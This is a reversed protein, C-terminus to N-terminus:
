CGGFFCTLFDFFDQSNTVGNANYDANGAFFGTLFDFFDQSNLTGNHNWDCACVATCGSVHLVFPGVNGNFGSVRIQYVEGATVGVIVYSDRDTDNIDDNCVLQNATETPCATHISLVTDYVSGMTDIAVQGTCPATYSFVVDPTSNSTGCDSSGDATAGSTDGHYTGAQVPAIGKCTDNEPAFVGARLYVDQIAGNTDSPRLNTAASNFGVISGDASIFPADSNADSQDGNYALSVLSTRNEDRDRVLIDRHMNTDGCGFLSCVYNEADSAFAVYRGNGSIMPNISSGTLRTVVTEFQLNLASGLSVVETVSETQPTGPMSPDPPASEDFLGDADTDRDRVFVDVADNTDGPVGEQQGLNSNGTAFAVFRGSDSISVRGLVDRNPAGEGENSRVSVRVTTNTVLDRVFADRAQNFDSFVLHSSDSTFAVFRGNASIFPDYSSGNAQCGQCSIEPTALVTMSNSEDMVGDTDPDRDRVYINSYDPAGSTFNFNSTWAVRRGNASISPSYSHNSCTQNPCADSSQTESSTLNVRSTRTRGAGAEDFIGNGDLDRDRVFIDDLENSDNTVLNNANSAFVVFRGDDSISRMGSTSCAANANTQGTALDPISVRVTTGNWRDKVFVDAGSNGDNAVLTNSNSTFVVWRGNPTVWGGYSPSAGQGGNTSTSVRETAQGFSAGAAALLALTGMIMRNRSINRNKKM